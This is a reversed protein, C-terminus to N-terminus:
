GHNPEQFSFVDPCNDSNLAHLYISTTAINRHGAADRVEIITRGASLSHSCFSHRGAHISLQKIRDEPLVKIATRWRKALVDLAMRQNEHGERLCPVFPMQMAEKVDLGHHESILFERWSSIDSLTGADWWLPVMRTRRKAKEGKTIEKRVRVAPRSGSVSLDGINLGAIEKRRLGCCCSLRFIILNLRSNISRKARRKLDKLVTQIEDRTLIQASNM